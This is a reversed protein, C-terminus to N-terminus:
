GGFLGIQGGTTGAFTASTNAGLGAYDTASDNEFVNNAGTVEAFDGTSFYVTDSGGYVYAGANADVVVNDDSGTLSDDSGNTNELIVGAGAAASITDGGGSVYGTANAGFDVTDGSGIVIDGLGDITITDGATTIDVTANNGTITVAESSGSVTFDANSAAVVTDSGGTITGTAGAGLGVTAGSTDLNENLGTVTVIDGAGGTFTEGNGMLTASDNSGLNIIAGTANSDAVITCSGIDANAIDLSGNLLMHTVAGDSANANVTGNSGLDLLLDNGTGGQLTAGNNGILITSGSGASVVGGNTDV